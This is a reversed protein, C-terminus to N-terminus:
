VPTVTTPYGIRSTDFYGSHHQITKKSGNVGLREAIALDAERQKEAYPRGLMSLLRWTADLRLIYEDIVPVDTDALWGTQGTGGSSEVIENSIYEFVFNEVGSPVPFLVVQNNRIRYYDSVTSNSATSNKLLRWEQPTSSGLVKLQTSSNWFTNNILRDYDSPLNYSETSAVSSFTHEKQLEQWDYTRALNTIAITLAQLIQVATAETNGIITLPISSSKTEKLIDQALSLLTM